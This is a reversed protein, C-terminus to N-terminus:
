GTLALWAPLTLLAAATTASAQAAVFPGDGGM